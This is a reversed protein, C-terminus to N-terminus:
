SLIRQMLLLLMKLKVAKNNNPFFFLTQWVSHIISRHPATHLKKCAWSWHAQQPIIERREMAIELDEPDSLGLQVLVFTCGFVARHTRECSHLEYQQHVSCEKSTGKFSWLHQPSRSESCGTAPHCVWRFLLWAADTASALFDAQCGQLFPHESTKAPCPATRKAKELRNKLFKGLYSPCM